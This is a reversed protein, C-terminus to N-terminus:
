IGHFPGEEDEDWPCTINYRLRELESPKYFVTVNDELRRFKFSEGKKDIGEFVYYGEERVDYYVVKGSEGKMTFDNLSNSIIDSVSKSSIIMNGM